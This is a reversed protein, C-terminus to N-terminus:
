PWDPPSALTQDKEESSEGGSNILIAAISAIVVGGAGIWLWKKGNNKKSKKNKIKQIQAENKVESVLEVFQPPEQEITPSYQPTIELIKKIVQKAQSTFGKALLAQALIKYAKGRENETLGDKKLCIKILDIAEDFRGDYYEKQAKNIEEECKVQDQVQASVTFSRNFVPALLQGWFFILILSFTLPKKRNV